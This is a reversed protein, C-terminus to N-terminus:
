WLSRVVAAEPTVSLLLLVSQEEAAQPCCVVSSLGTCLMYYWASCMGKANTANRNIYSSCTLLLQEKLLYMFPAYGVMLANCPLHVINRSESAAKIDKQRQKQKEAKKRAGTKKKPM